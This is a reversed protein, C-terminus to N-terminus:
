IVDSVAIPSTLVFTGASSDSSYSLLLVPLFPDVRIVPVVATETLRIGNVYVRLSEDIFPTPLSTTQYSQYDPNFANQYAPTIDYNPQFIATLPVTIHAEIHNYDLLEWTVSESNQFVLPGEDFVNTVSITEFEIRMNTADPAVFQLKDRENLLM